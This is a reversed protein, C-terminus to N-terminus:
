DILAKVGRYAGYGLGAGVAARALWPAARLAAEIAHVRPTRPVRYHSVTKLEPSKQVHQPLLEHSPVQPSLCIPSAMGVLTSCIAKGSTPPKGALAARLPKPIVTKLGSKIAAATDYQAKRAAEGLVKELAKEQNEARALNNLFRKVHTPDKFRKVIVDREPSLNRVHRVAGGEGPQAHITAPPKGAPAEMVAEVHSGFPDMGILSGPGKVVSLGPKSTLLIDGAQLKKQLEAVSKVRLEAPEPLAISSRATMGHVTPAVGVAGGVVAPLV